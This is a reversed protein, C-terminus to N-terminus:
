ITNTYDRAAVIIEKKLQEWLEKDRFRVIHFWEKSRGKVSPPNVVWVPSIPSYRTITFRVVFGRIELQELLKM